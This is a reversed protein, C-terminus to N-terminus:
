ILEDSRRIVLILLTIPYSVPHKLVLVRHYDLMISCYGHDLLDILDHIRQEIMTQDHFEM